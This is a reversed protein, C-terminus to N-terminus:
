VTGTQEWKEKFISGEGAYGGSKVLGDIIKDDNLLIPQAGGSLISKAAEELIFDPTDSRVRLACCPANVPIRRGARLFLITLKNHFCEGTQPDTGGLTMQQGWQSFSPGQPYAGSGGGGM